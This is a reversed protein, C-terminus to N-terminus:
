NKFGTLAYAFEIPYSQRNLEAVVRDNFSRLEQKTKELNQLLESQSVELSILVESSYEDHMTLKLKNADISEVSIWPHGIWVQTIEGAPSRALNEWDTFNGLDGCCSPMIISTDSELIIGGYFTSVEDPDSEKTVESLALERDILVGLTQQSIDSLSVFDQGKIAPSVDTIGWDELVEYWFEERAKRYAEDKLKISPYDRDEKLFLDPGFEIVPTIKM